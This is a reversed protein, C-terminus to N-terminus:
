KWRTLFKLSFTTQAMRLSSCHLSVSSPFVLAAAASFFVLYMRVDDLSVRRRLSSSAASPLTMETTSFSERLRNNGAFGAIDLSVLFKDPLVLKEKSQVDDLVFQCIGVLLRVLRGHRLFYGVDHVDAGNFTDNMM